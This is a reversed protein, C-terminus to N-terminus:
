GSSRKEAPHRAKKSKLKTKRRTHSQNGSPLDKKQQHRDAKFNLKINNEILFGV